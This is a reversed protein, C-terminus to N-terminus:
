LHVSVSGVLSGWTAVRAQSVLLHNETDKRDEMSIEVSKSKTRYCEEWVVEEGQPNRKKHPCWNRAKEWPKEAMGRLGYANKQNVCM